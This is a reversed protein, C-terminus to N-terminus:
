KVMKVALEIRLLHTFRLLNSELLSNFLLMVYLQVVAALAVSNM